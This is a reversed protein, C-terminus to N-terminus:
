MLDWRRPKWCVRGRTAAASERRQLQMGDLLGHRWPSRPRVWGLLGPVTSARRRWAAASLPVLHKLADKTARGCSVMQAIGRWAVRLTWSVWARRSERRCRTPVHQIRGLRAIWWLKGAVLCRRGLLWRLSVRLLLAMALWLGLGLALLRRGRSARRILRYRIWVRLLRRRIVAHRVFRSGIPVLARTSWAIALYTNSETGLLVNALMARTPRALDVSM